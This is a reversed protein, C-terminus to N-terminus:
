RKKANGKGKRKSKKKSGKSKQPSKRKPRSVAPAPRTYEYYLFAVEALKAERLSYADARPEQRADRREGRIFDPQRRTPPPIRVADQLVPIDDFGRLYEEYAANNGPEDDPPVARERPALATNKMGYGACAAGEVSGVIM